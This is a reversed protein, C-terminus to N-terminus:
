VLYRKHHRLTYILCSDYESCPFDECKKLLTNKKEMVTSSLTLIPPDKLSKEHRKNVFLYFVAAYSDNAGGWHIRSAKLIIFIETVIDNM